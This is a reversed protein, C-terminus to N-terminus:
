DGKTELIQLQEDLRGAATALSSQANASAWSVIHNIDAILGPTITKANNLTREIDEVIRRYKKLAEECSDRSGKQLREIASIKNM